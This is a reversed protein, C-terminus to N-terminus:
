FLNKEWLFDFFEISSHLVSLFAFHHLPFTNFMIQAGLVITWFHVYGLFHSFLHLVGKCPSPSGDEEGPPLVFILIDVHDEGLDGPVVGLNTGKTCRKRM